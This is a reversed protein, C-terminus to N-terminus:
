EAAHKGKVKGILVGFGILMVGGVIWAAAPSLLAVGYVVCGCGAALFLDDL